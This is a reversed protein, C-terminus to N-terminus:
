LGTFSRYRYIFDITFPNFISLLRILDVLPLKSRCLFLKPVVKLSDLNRELPNPAVKFGIPTLQSDNSNVKYIFSLSCEM